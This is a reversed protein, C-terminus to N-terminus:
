KKRKKKRDLENLESQQMAAEAYIRKVKERREVDSKIQQNIKVRGVFAKDRRIERLAGKRENKLKHLLKSREAKERSQMKHRKGDYVVEIKPEYLRLAKPRTAEMVIYELKRESKAGRLSGMLREAIDRVEKPYKTTPLLELYRVLPEFIEVSSPLVKLNEHFEELLKVVNVFVRVKFEEDIDNSQLDESKMMFSEFSELSFNELLVLLNSTAKFPPIVKILKVGTKPIAMHLIGSLYNIVAPVYRKSISTYELVLSSLLLGYCIDKRNKTRCKNLMQEMFIFCPTVIQHRFDSTSFLASVLKLFIIVELDPHMRPKKRYEEHKEKIVELVSNHANEPNMQALEHIQPVIAKFIEFSKKLSNDQLAETFLDNLYQLLYAFLLGLNDKNGEALSPHNCKIMRELIVCQHSCSQNEFLKLLSEYSDPLAYTYPLEKRAKDMIKKREALDSKIEETAIPTEENKEVKKEKVQGNNEVDAEKNIGLDEEEEGEESESADGKLDSLNDESDTEEGEFEEEEDGNEVVENDSNDEKTNGKLIKGNVNAEVELNSEGEANYSLMYDQDEEYVIDDDLDDASRHNANANNKNVFGQMRELRDKELQELREKEEKAIEDETKLRDSVTGRAEFRLEGMIKDYDDAKPKETNDESKRKNKNVLPLLDKWEADLKETLELTAEKVKQKEAKRKKSEAILQDILDKHSKAGEIGTKKLMGGGFHAEGVFDKELKGSDGELSEDDSRPDDFKEIESLTQGKHTLVEDDALNFISKKNHAKVRVATFRAMDKDEKTLNRNKEGIRRDLFKNSKNQSKYEQLLTYKRKEISKARSVGPLGRDNKQKKGIVRLKEKNIHVEFPNMIKTGLKEKKKHIRDASVKSKNKVKAM